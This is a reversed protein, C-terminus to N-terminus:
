GRGSTASSIAIMTSWPVFSTTWPAVPRSPENWVSRLRDYPVLTTAPTVGPLPPVSRSPIGIKLVTACATSSVPAFVVM